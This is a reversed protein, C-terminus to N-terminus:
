WRVSAGGESGFSVERIAAADQEIGLEGIDTTDLVVRVDGGDAANIIVPEFDWVEGPRYGGVRTWRPGMVALVIVILLVLPIVVFYLVYQTM